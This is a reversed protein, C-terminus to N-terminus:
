HGEGLNFRYRSTISLTYSLDLRTYLLMVYMISGINSTYSIMKM